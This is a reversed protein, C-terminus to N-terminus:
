LNKLLDIMIRSNKHENLQCNENLDLKTINNIIKLWKCDYIITYYFIQDNMPVQELDFGIGKPFAQEFMSIEELLVNIRPKIYKKYFDTNLQDIEDMDIANDLGNLTIIFYNLQEIIKSQIDM